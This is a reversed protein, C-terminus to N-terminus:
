KKWKARLEACHDKATLAPTYHVSDRDAQPAQETDGAQGIAVVSRLGPPLWSPVGISRLVHGRGAILIVTKGARVQQQATSAMSADKALQIRAMPALQADPLLGCHGDRIADLQRQWGPQPLHTDWQPQQMVERMKARPLNGGLVPVGAQVATMVAPGYSKWPWGADNWALASQVEADSASAPLGQTSNGADAMELVLAALRGQAAWQAVTDRQWQQHEPADHQEGLLLVDPPHQLLLQRKWDGLPTAPPSASSACGALMFVFVLSSAALLGSPLTKTKWMTRM